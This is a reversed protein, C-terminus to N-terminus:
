RRVGASGALLLERLATARERAVPIRLGQGQEALGSGVFIWTDGEDRGLERVFPLNVLWSRHVRVLAAGWMQEIQALSLDVDFRGALTHVFTLRESAEFALVEARDLFVISRGNRAVIRTPENVAAEAARPPRREALRELCRQVREETFPKVLYDIVGHEFAELAHQKFATALVFAPAGARSAFERVLAMGAEPGDGTLHMDVFAVDFSAVGSLAERAERLNAVAGLVQARGSNELLEVLYNRAPWEDEVVLATFRPGSTAGSNTGSNMGLVSGSM